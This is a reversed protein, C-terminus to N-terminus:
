EDGIAEAEHYTALVTASSVSLFFGASGYSWRFGADERKIWSNFEIWHNEAINRLLEFIEDVGAEQRQRFTVSEDNNKQEQLIHADEFLMEASSPSMNRLFLNCPSDAELQLSNEPLFEASLFNALLDSSMERLLCQIEEDALQELQRILEYRKGSVPMEKKEIKLEHRLDQILRRLTSAHLYICHEDLHITRYAANQPSVAIDIKQM